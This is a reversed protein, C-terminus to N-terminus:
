HECFQSYRYGDSQRELYELHLLQLTVGVRRRERHIWACDPTPKAAAAVSPYLRAELESPALGEVLTVRRGGHV